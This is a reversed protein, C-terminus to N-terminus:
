RVAFGPLSTHSGHRLTSLSHYRFVSLSRVHVHCVSLGRDLRVRFSCLCAGSRCSNGSNRITQPRGIATGPPEQAEWFRNSILAPGEQSTGFCGLANLRRRPLTESPVRHPQFCGSFRWLRGPVGSLAGLLATSRASAVVISLQRWTM